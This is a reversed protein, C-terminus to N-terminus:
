AIVGIRKLFQRDNHTVDREFVYERVPPPTPAVIPASVLVRVNVTFAGESAHIEIRSVVARCWSCAAGAVLMLPLPKTCKGCLVGM